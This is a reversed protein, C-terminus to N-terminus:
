KALSECGIYTVELAIHAVSLHFSDNVAFSLTSLLYVGTGIENFGKM